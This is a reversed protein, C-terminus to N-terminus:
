QGSIPYHLYSSQEQSNRISYYIQENHSLSSSNMWTIKGESKKEWKDNRHWADIIKNIIDKRNNCQEGHYLIFIANERKRM